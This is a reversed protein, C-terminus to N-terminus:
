GATAETLPALYEDYIMQATELNREDATALLDAYVVLPPATDGIEGFKWFKRLIEIEGKEDKVLGYKAQLRPLSSDAYITAMQPKLHKTLSAGGTEGGWVAKYQKIIVDTWWRGGEKTSSYNGIKLKERFQESYAVAWRKILEAKKTLRREDGSRTALYGAKELEKLFRGVTVHAVGTEEAITRYDLNEFEPKQLFALLLKIGAPRFINIPKKKSAAAKNGTIFIYLGPANLYANGTTDLFEVGLERMKEAQPQTIYETILLFPEKIRKAQLMVNGLTANSFRTKVEVAYKAAREVNPATIEAAYDAKHDAARYPTYKIQVGSQENAAKAAKEIIKQESQM